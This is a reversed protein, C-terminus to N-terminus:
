GLADEEDPEVGLSLTRALTGTHDTCTRPRPGHLHAPTTRAPARAHDTCTRPRPGHLHAPLQAAIHQMVIQGAERDQDESSLGPPVELRYAPGFRLCFAGGSEYAGVPVLPLGLRSLHLLFRGTGPPPPRFTGEPADAGEPALGILPRPTRHVYALVQRVAVARAAVDRPDPPMPPMSTFGYVQALRRFLWRTAPTLTRARFPDPYTWAATMVWPVDAPVVASVGLALWWARFGPRAYHNLTLLAPGDGPVHEAGYVRLAPHPGDLCVRADQRFSRRSGVRLAAFLM